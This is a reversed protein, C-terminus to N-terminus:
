KCKEEVFKLIESAIKIFYDATSTDLDIPATDPYRTATAFPTLEGAYTNFRIFEQDHENCLDILAVLDHTRRIDEEKYALFAKLAKETSQQTLFLVLGINLEDPTNRLIRACNLDTRAYQLWVEHERM